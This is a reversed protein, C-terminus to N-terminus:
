KAMVLLLVVAGALVMMGTTMTVTGNGATPQVTGRQGEIYYGQSGLAQLKMAETYAEMQKINTYRDIATGAVNQAWTGWDM